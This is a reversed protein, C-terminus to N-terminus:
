RYIVVDTYPMIQTIDEEYENIFNADRYWINFNVEIAAKVNDYSDYLKVEDVRVLYKNDDLYFFAQDHELYTYKDTKKKMYDMVIDVQNQPMRRQLLREFDELHGAIPGNEDYEFAGMVTDISQQTGVINLEFDLERPLYDMDSTMLDWDAKASEYDSATLPDVWNSGGLLKSEIGSHQKEYLADFDFEIREKPDILRVLVASAEARSLVGQPRFTDDTYGTIIGLKYTQM